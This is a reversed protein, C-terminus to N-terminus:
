GSSRKEPILLVGRGEPRQISQLFGGRQRSVAKLDCTGAPLKCTYLGLCGGCDSPKQCRRSQIDHCSHTDGNFKGHGKLHHSLGPKRSRSAQPPLKWPKSPPDQQSSGLPPKALANSPSRSSPLAEGMVEWAGALPCSGELGQRPLNDGGDGPPWPDEAPSGVGPQRGPADAWGRLAESPAPASCLLVLLLATVTLVHVKM